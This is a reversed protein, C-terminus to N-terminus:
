VTFRDVQEGIDNISQKMVGAIGNLADGADNIKLASSSMQTMSEKITNTENQLTGVDDIITQSNTTMKKSASQVERTSDKMQALADTILNSGSSQEQMATKIQHVLNDTSRVESALNAFNEVGKETAEVVENIKSQIESLQEGITASQESSTESLKRIEDAVVAFGKGANGAHAAEIAANMALLNTQEAISAIVANAESLLNSQNEIESIKQQLAEQSKAGDESSKAIKAFSSAMKDVSLNVENINGVMQEVASSAGEVSESQASILDELSTINELISEVSSSTQEVCNSQSKLNGDLNRIGSTILEIAEMADSITSGLKGGANSLSSKSNKMSGIIAQLKESYLNFSDAVNGIENNEHVNLRNSLNGNGEAIEQANQSIDDAMIKLPRLKKRMFSATSIAFFLGLAVCIIFAIRMTREFSENVTKLPCCVVIEYGTKDNIISKTLYVKNDMVIKGETASSKVYEALEPIDLDNINKFAASRSGTDALIFGDKQLMVVSSGAGFNLTSLISTLKELSIDLGANGIFDGNFDYVSSVISVVLTGSTTQYADTIVANGGGNSADKYWQRTRPDYGGSKSHSLNTAYGGWKTGFFVESTDKDINSFEQAVTRIRQETPSKEYGSIQITGTENIFSHITDDANKVADSTCFFKVVDEKATFFINISNSFDKLVNEASTYFDYMAKKEFAIRVVLQSIGILLFVIIFESLAFKGALSMRKRTKM